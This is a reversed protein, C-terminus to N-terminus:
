GIGLEAVYVTAGIVPEGDKGIVQGIIDNQAQVSFATCSLAFFFLYLTRM